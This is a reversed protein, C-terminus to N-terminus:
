TIVVSKCGDAFPTVASCFNKIDNKLSLISLYKKGNIKEFGHTLIKEWYINQIKLEALRECTKDFYLWLLSKKNASKKYREFDKHLIFLKEIICRWDELNVEGSLYLEQLTPYGYLEQVM